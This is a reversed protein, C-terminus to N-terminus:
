FVKPRSTYCNLVGISRERSILPVCVMSCLGEKEAIDPFRYQPWKKVDLITLVRGELLARGAVSEGVQLNPKDVYDRSKSQTAKIVLEQREEDLLMISCIKFNFTQATMAVILQLIEELYLNSTITKSVESIASLQTSQVTIGEQLRM